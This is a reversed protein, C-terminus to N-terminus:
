CTELKQPIEHSKPIERLANAIVGIYAKKVQKDVITVEAQYVMSKQLCNCHCLDTNKALQAENTQKQLVTKNHRIIFAKTNEACSYGVRM